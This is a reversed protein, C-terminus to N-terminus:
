QINFIRMWRSFDDISLRWRYQVEFLVGFRIWLREVMLTGDVMRSEKWCILQAFTCAVHLMNWEGMIKKFEGYWVTFIYWALTFLVMHIIKFQLNFHLLISFFWFISDILWDDASCLNSIRFNMGPALLMLCKSIFPLTCYVYTTWEM